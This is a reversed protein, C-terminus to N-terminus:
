LMLVMEYDCFFLLLFLSIIGLLDWLKIFDFSKDAVDLSIIFYRKNMEKFFYYLITIYNLDSCITIILLVSLKVIVSLSKISHISKFPSIKNM